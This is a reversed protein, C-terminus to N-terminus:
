QGTRSIPIQINFRITNHDFTGPNINTVDVYYNGAPANVGLVNVDGTSWTITYDALNTPNILLLGMFGNVGATDPPTTYPTVSPYTEGPETLSYALQVTYNCGEEITFTVTTNTYTTLTSGASSDYKTIAINVSPNVPVSLYSSPITITVQSGALYFYTKTTVGSGGIPRGYFDSTIDFPNQHLQGTVMVYQIVPDTNSVVPFNKSRFTIFKAKEDSFRKFRISDIWGSYHIRNYRAFEIQGTQNREIFKFENFTLPYEWEHLILPANDPKFYAVQGGGDASQTCSYVSNALINYFGITNGVYELEIEVAAVNNADLIMPRSGTCNIITYTSTTDINNQNFFITESLLTGGVMDYRKFRGTINWSSSASSGIALRVNTYLTCLGSAPAKFYHTTNDYNGGVDHNPTTSEDDFVVPFVFYPSLFPTVFTSNTDNASKSAQFTNDSDGLYKVITFPITSNYNSMVAPGFLPINYFVPFSTNNGDLNEQHASYNGGAVDCMIFFMEDDTDEEGHLLADEIKNSSIIWDSVLNLERDINTPTLSHFQEEKPGVFSINEPFLLGTEPFAYIKDTTETSGIRVSGYLEDVDIKEKIGLVNLAQFITANTHVESLREIRLVPIASSFDFYLGINIKKNVEEFLKAFSIPQFNEKFDEDTTGGVIYQRLVVGCTVTLGEYDGGPGFLTSSFGVTNDTIYSIIYRFLNYVPYCAGSFPPNVLVGISSGDNPDFMQVKEYECAVLPLGSKTQEGYPLVELSKNNFVKAYFTNDEILVSITCEGREIEITRIFIIGKFFTQYYNDVFQQLEVDVTSNLGANYKNILYTYGDEKFTLKAECTILLGNFQKLRKIVSTIDEWGIPTENIEQGDFLIRLRKDSM